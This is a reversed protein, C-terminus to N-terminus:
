AGQTDYSGTAGGPHRLVSAKHFGQQLTNLTTWRSQELDAGYGLFYVGAQEMTRSNLPVSRDYLVGCAGITMFALTHYRSWRAGCALSVLIPRYREIFDGGCSVLCWMSEAHFTRM